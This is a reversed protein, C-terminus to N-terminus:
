VEVSFSDPQLESMVGDVIEGTIKDIVEDGIVLQKKLEAWKPSETIKIFDSYNNKKLWAVLKENDQKTKYGGKKKILRGSLLAYTEQTKTEKHPVSEFYDRLCSTLFSTKSEYREKAKAAKGLIEDVQAKALEELRQYEAKEEAIKQVAWDALHDDTIEFRREAPEAALIADIDIDKM